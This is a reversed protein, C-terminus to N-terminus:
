AARRTGATMFAELASEPIRIRPRKGTGMPVAPLHKGYVLRYVSKPSLDLRDAVTNVSLLREGM